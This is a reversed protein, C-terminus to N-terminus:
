KIPILKEPQFFSSSIIVPQSGPADIRALVRAGDSNRLGTFYVTGNKNVSHQSITFDGAPLITEWSNTGPAYSKIMGNGSSDKGEVYVRESSCTVDSLTGFGQSLADVDGPSTMFRLIGGQFSLDGRAAYFIEDSTECIHHPMSIRSQFATDSAHVSSTFTGDSNRMMKTLDPSRNQFWYFSGDPGIIPQVYEAVILNQLSGNAKRILAGNQGSLIIFVDGEPGVLYGDISRSNGDTVPEGQYLVTKTLNNLDSTDVKVLNVINKGGSEVFYINNKNDWQITGRNGTILSSLIQDGACYLKGSVKSRIILNCNPLPLSDFIFYMFNENQIFDRAKGSDTLTSGDSTKLLEIAKLEGQENLSYFAQPKIDNNLRFGEGKTIIINTAASDIETSEALLIQPTEPTEGPNNTTNGSDDSKKKDANGLFTGCGLVLSLSAILVYQTFLQKLKSAFIHKM